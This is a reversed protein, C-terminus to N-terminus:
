FDKDWQRRRLEGSTVERLGAEILREVLQGIAENETELLKDQGILGSDYLRVTDTLKEPPLFSGVIDIRNIM